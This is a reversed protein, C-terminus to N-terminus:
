AIHDLLATKKKSNPKCYICGLVINQVINVNKPTILAWTVEVGWTNTLDEYDYKASNIILAPRGGKCNRQDLNSIVKFNELDFNDELKFKKRDHSESVFACDVNQEEIFTKLQDLKNIASRPNINM